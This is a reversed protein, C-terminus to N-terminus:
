GIWGSLVGTPLPVQFVHRFLLVLIVPVLLSAAGIAIWRREGYLMMLVAFFPVSAVLFGAFSLLAVYVVFAVLLVTPARLPPAPLADDRVGRSATLGQVLLIASLLLLSATIVWPFFSPDPANPLSRTPLRSTLFGYAVGLAALVLAAVINKLRM